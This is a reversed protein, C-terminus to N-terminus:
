SLHLGQGRLEASRAGTQAMYRRILAAPGQAPRLVIGRADTEIRKIGHEALFGAVLAEVTSREALVRARDSASLAPHLVDLILVLRPRDGEHWVEHEFSDDFVLCRGEQWNLLEGGVRLAAGPPVRLGLHVRLQANTRGCHPRVHSGPDLRSLTVVGPSLTTAEPIREVVQSTFPFRACAEHQRRGGEYLVVQDWRGQTILPEEVPAFADGTSAEVEDVEARIGAFSEELHRVFWLDEATHVPRHSGSALLETPRQLRDTWVGQQVALDIVDDALDRRGTRVLGDVLHLYERRIEPTVGDASM